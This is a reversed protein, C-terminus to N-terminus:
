ASRASGARRNRKRPVALESVVYASGNAEKGTAARQANEGSSLPTAESGAPRAHQERPALAGTALPAVPQAVADLELKLEREAQFWDIEPSGEPRGRAEWLSYAREATEREDVREITM